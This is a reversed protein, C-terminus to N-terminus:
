ANLLILEELIKEIKITTSGLYKLLLCDHDSMEGGKLAKNGDTSADLNGRRGEKEVKLGKNAAM